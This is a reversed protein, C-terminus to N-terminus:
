DLPQRAKAAGDASTKIKKLETQIALNLKNLEDRHKNIQKDNGIGEEKAKIADALKQVLPAQAAQYGKVRAEVAGVVADNDILARGKNLMSEKPNKSDKDVFKSALADLKSNDVNTYDASFIKNVSGLSNEIFAGAIAPSLGFETRLRNMANTIGAPTLSTDSWVSNGEKNIAGVKKGIDSIVDLESRKDDGGTALAKAISADGDYLASKAKVDRLISNSTNTLERVKDLSTLPDTPAKADLGSYNIPAATPQTVPLSAANAVTPGVGGKKSIANAAWSRAEGANMGKLFPNAAIADAGVLQSIPTSADAALVKPGAGRGFFHMAYLSADNIPVGAPIAKANGETFKEAMQNHYTPNTRLSLIAGKNGGLRMFTAPDNERVTDIWTGDTFQAPGFASSAGAKNPVMGGNESGGEAGFMKPLYSKIANGVSGDANGFPNNVTTTTGPTSGAPSLSPRGISLDNANATIPASLAGMYTKLAGLTKADVGGAESKRIFEERGDATALQGATAAAQLAKRATQDVNLQDEAKKLELKSADLNVQASGIKIPNASADFQNQLGQAVVTGPTLQTFRDTQARTQDTSARTQATSALTSGVTARRQAENAAFNLAEPTLMTPDIGGLATGSQLATM